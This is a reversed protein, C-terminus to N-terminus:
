SKMGDRIPIVFGPDEGFQIQMNPEPIMEFVKRDCM